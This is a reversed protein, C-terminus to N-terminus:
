ESGKYGSQEAEGRTRKRAGNPKWISLAFQVYLCFTLLILLWLLDNTTQLDPKRGIACTMASSTFGLLGAVFTALSLISDNGTHSHLTIM